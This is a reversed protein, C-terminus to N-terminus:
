RINPRGEAHSPLDRSVDHWNAKYHTYIHADIKVPIDQDFVALSVEMQEPAHDKSRFGLSSGCEKCFTRTTQNPAEYDQLFSTGSLWELGHVSVFTSFAAGHFKRCMTCHCNAAKDDFTKVRFTAKGCLCSGKYFQNM